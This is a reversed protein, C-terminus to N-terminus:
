IWKGDSKRQFGLQFMLGGQFRRGNEADDEGAERALGHEGAGGRGSLKSETM